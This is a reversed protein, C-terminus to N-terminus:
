KPYNAKQAWDIEVSGPIGHYERPFAYDKRLPFGEWDDPLLIRRPHKVAGVDAVSDPHNTFNIGFLDYTEREHWDAAHWIEAVSPAVPNDRPVFVKLCLVHLHSYSMLDYAVALLKRDPYDLGTVSRLMDLQIEANDRVFQAVALLHEAPVGFWPHLGESASQTIVQPGLSRTVLAFMQTPTLM